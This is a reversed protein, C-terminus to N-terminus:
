GQPLLGKPNCNHDANPANHNKADQNPCEALRRQEAGSLDLKDPLRGAILGSNQKAPPMVRREALENQKAL